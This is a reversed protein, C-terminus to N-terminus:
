RPPPKPKLEVEDAEGGKLIYRMFLRDGQWRLDKYRLHAIASVRVATTLFILLM